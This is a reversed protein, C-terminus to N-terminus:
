NGMEIEMDMSLTSFTAHTFEQSNSIKHDLGFPIFNFYEYEMMIALPKSCVGIFQTINPHSLSKLMKAEKAINGLHSDGEEFFGEVVVVKGNPIYNGKM